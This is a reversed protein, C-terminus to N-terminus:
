GSVPGVKPLYAKVQGGRGFAVFVGSCLVDWRPQKLTARVQPSKEPEAPFCEIASAAIDREITRRAASVLGPKCILM